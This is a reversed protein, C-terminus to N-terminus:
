LLFAAKRRSTARARVNVLMLTIVSRASTRAARGSKGGVSTTVGRATSGKSVMGGWATGRRAGLPVRARSIPAAWIGRRVVRAVMFHRGVIGTGCDCVLTNDIPTCTYLPLHYWFDGARHRKLCAERGPIHRSTTFM